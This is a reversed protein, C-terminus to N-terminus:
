GTGTDVWEGSDDCGCVMREQQTHQAIAGALCEEADGTKRGEETGSRLWGSRGVGNRDSGNGGCDNAEYAREKVTFRVSDSRGSWEVLGVEAIVSIMENAGSELRSPVCM